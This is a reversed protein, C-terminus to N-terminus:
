HRQIPDSAYAARRRLVSTGYGFLDVSGCVDDWYILFKCRIYSNTIQAMLWIPSCETCQM